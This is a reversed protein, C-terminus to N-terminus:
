ESFSLPSMIHCSPPHPHTSPHSSILPQNTVDAETVSKPVQGLFLKPAAGETRAAIAAKHEASSLTPPPLRSATLQAAIAAATAAAQEAAAVEEVSLSALAQASTAM